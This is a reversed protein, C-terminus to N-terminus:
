QCGKWIGTFLTNVKARKADLEKSDTRFVLSSVAVYQTRKKIEMASNVIMNAVSEPSENRM